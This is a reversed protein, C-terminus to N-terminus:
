RENVYMFVGDTTINNRTYRTLIHMFNNQM